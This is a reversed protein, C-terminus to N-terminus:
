FSFGFDLTFIGINEGGMIYANYETRNGIPQISVEYTDVALLGYGLGFYLARNNNLAKSMGISVSFMGTNPKMQYPYIPSDSNINLNIEYPFSILTGVSASIYPTWKTKLLNVRLNLFVPINVLSPSVLINYHTYDYSSRIDYIYTGDVLRLDFGTGLGLFWRQNFRYGGIYNIGALNYEGFKGSLNVYQEYGKARNVHEKASEKYATVKASAEKLSEREIAEAKAKEKAVRAAEEKAIREAEAKEKAVREAEEKAIREAEAKEKAVREAEEKAIREAEAREKAVREAEEKAIREAEAKEKAVREAEEKAIREAEAKEKAVRESEEKAIREAEAKEKAVRESEEKVQQAADIELIANNIDISNAIVKIGIEEVGYIDGYFKAMKNEKWDGRELKWIVNYKNQAKKKGLTTLICEIEDYNEGRFNVIECGIIKGFPKLKKSLELNCYEEPLGEFSFFRGVNSDYAISSPSSESVIFDFIPKVVAMNYKNITAVCENKIEEIFDKNVTNVQAMFKDYNGSLLAICVCLKKYTDDNKIYCIDNNIFSTSYDEVSHNEKALDQQTFYVISSDKHCITFLEPMAVCLENIIDRFGRPSNTEGNILQLMLPIGNGIAYKRSNISSKKLYEYDLQTIDCINEKRKNHLKEKLVEVQDSTLLVDYAYTPRSQDVGKVDKEYKSREVTAYYGFDKKNVSSRSRYGEISLVEECFKNFGNDTFVIEEKLYKYKKNNPTSFDYGGLEEFDLIDDNFIINNAFIGLPISDELVIVNRKLLEKETITGTAYKKALETLAPRTAGDKTTKRVLVGNQFDYIVDGIAEADRYNITWRGTLEGKSTLTGKAICPLDRYFGSSSYAGVLVGKNYTVSLKDISNAKSQINFAGHPLGNSFNGNFTMTQTESGNAALGQATCTISFSFTFAGHLNGKLFTTNLKFYGNNSISYQTFDKTVVLADPKALISFPGDKLKRGDEDIIYSYTKKGTTPWGAPYPNYTETTQQRQGFVSMCNLMCVAALLLTRPKM